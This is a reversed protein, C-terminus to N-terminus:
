TRAGGKKGILYIAYDLPRELSLRRAAEDNTRLFVDRGPKSNAEIFWLRGSAEAGMDVGVEGLPGLHRDLLEVLKLATEYITSEMGVGQPGFADRLAVDLRVANGGTHLNSTITGDRGIRMAAGTLKWKATGDKQVLVRIDFPRGSVTLPLGEQVLYSRGRIYPQIGQFVGTASVTRWYGNKSDKVIYSDGAHKVQIIGSGCSGRDPKLYLVKHRKTM